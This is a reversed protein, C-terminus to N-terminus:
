KPIDVFEYDNENIIVLVTKPGIGPLGSQSRNWTVRYFGSYPWGRLKKLIIKTRAIHTDFNLIKLISIM